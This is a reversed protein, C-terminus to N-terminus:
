VHQSALGILRKTQVAIERGALLFHPGPRNLSTKRRRLSGAHNMGIKFASKNANFHISQIIQDLMFGLNRDLLVSFQSDFAFAVQNLITVNTVEQEVDLKNLRLCVFGM